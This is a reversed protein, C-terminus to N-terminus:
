KTEDNEKRRNEIQIGELRLQKEAPEVLMIQSIEIDGSQLKNILLELLEEHMNTTEININM